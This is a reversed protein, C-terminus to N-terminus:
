WVRVLAGQACGVRARVRDGRQGPPVHFHGPAAVPVVVESAGRFGRGVVGVQGTQFLADPHLEFLYEHEVQRADALM